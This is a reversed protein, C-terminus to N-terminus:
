RKGRKGGKKKKTMMVVIAVAALGIGGLVMPNKLMGAAGAVPSTGGASVTAPKTFSVGSSSVDLTGEGTNLSLSQKGKNKKFVSSIKKGLDKFINGMLEADDPDYDFGLLSEDVASDIERTLFPDGMVMTGCPM